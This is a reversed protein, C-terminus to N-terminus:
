SDTSKQEIVHLNVPTDHYGIMM